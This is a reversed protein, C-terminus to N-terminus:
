RVVCEGEGGFVESCKGRVGGANKGRVNDFKIIIFVRALERMLVKANDNNRFSSGIIIM